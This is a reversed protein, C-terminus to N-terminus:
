ARSEIRLAFTQGLLKPVRFNPTHVQRTKIVHSIKRLHLACSEGSQQIHHKFKKM